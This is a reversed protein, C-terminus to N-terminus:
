HIEKMFTGYIYTLGFLRAYAKPDRQSVAYYRRVNLKKCWEDFSEIFERAHHPLHLAVITLTDQVIQYFMFGCIENDHLGIITAYQGALANALMLEHTIGVTPVQRVLSWLEIIADPDALYQIDVQPM